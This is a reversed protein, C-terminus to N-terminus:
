ASDTASNDLPDLGAAAFRERIEEVHRYVTGRCVGLEGATEPVTHGALLLKYVQQLRPPMGEAVTEMDLRLETKAQDDFEGQRAENTVPEFGLAIDDYGAPSDCPRRLETCRTRQWYKVFKDLVRNLFTKRTSKAPDFRKEFASLIEVVMDQRLDEQQHESLDFDDTLLRIRFSIRELAYEDVISSPSAPKSCSRKSTDTM